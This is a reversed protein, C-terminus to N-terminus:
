VAVKLSALASVLADIDQKSSMETVCFLICDQLEAYFRGLELGGLIGQEELKRNILAPNERCQIVFENFFPSSFKRTFGPTSCITDMAYRAKRANQTAVEKLGQKGMLSLYVTAALACLASNTCINSSAKERRIHQERAQLTLVFGERGDHDVTKGSLRGPIKRMHKALTAMFGLYPGGFAIPLGLSQCEGAAIDAGYKGPPKLIGLSAPEVVAAVFLAGSGKVVEAIEHGPELCGLFNPNQIIVAATNKDLMEKLGNTDTIGERLPIELIETKEPFYTHLVKRYEPHLAASVLLKNRRTEACALISAEAVATSGDYLSANAIDMGTLLSIMSQFEFIAQLTGQSAEAQYPTYATYFESRSIIARVASPIFHRYSGAGLFSRTYRKNKRAMGECYRQLDLEAMADPLELCKNCLAEKPIDEFLRDIHSVGIFDLMEQIEKESHPIYDM